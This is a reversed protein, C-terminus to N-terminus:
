ESGLLGSSRLDWRSRPKLWLDRLTHSENYCIASFEHVGWLSIHSDTVLNECFPRKSFMWLKIVSVLECVSPRQM